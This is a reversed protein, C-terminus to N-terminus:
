GKGASTAKAAAAAGAPGGVVGGVATAGAKAGSGALGALLSGVTGGLGHSPDGAGVMAACIAPTKLLMFGIGLCIAVFKMADVIGGGTPAPAGGIAAADLLFRCRMSVNGSAVRELVRPFTATILTMLFSFVVPWLAVSVVRRAYQVLGGMEKLFTIPIAIVGLYVTLAFMIPWLVDIVFFKLILVGYVALRAGLLVLGAPSVTFEVLTALTRFYNLAEGVVPVFGATSLGANSLAAQQEPNECSFSTLAGTFAADLKGTSQDTLVNSVSTVGRSLMVSLSPIAAILISAALGRIVVDIFDAHAGRVLKLTERLLDIAIALALIQLGVARTTGIGPIDSFQIIDM